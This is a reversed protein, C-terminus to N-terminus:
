ESIDFDYSVYRPRTEAVEAMLRKMEDSSVEKAGRIVTRQLVLEGPVETYHCEMTVGGSRRLVQPVWDMIKPSDVARESAIVVDRLVVQTSDASVVTGSVKDLSFFFDLSASREGGTEDKQGADTTSTTVLRVMQGPKLESLELMGSKNQQTTGDSAVALNTSLSAGTAFQDSLLGPSHTMSLDGVCGVCLFLPGLWAAWM